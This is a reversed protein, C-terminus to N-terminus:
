RLGKSADSTMSLAETVAKDIDPYSSNQRPHKERYARAAALAHTETQGQLKPDARLHAGLGILASDLEVELREEAAGLNGGRLDELNRVAMVADASDHTVSATNMFETGFRLTGYAGAVGGVLASGVAFLVLYRTKMM